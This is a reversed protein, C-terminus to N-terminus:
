VINGMMSSMASFFPMRGSRGIATEDVEACIPMVAEGTDTAVTDSAEMRASCAPTM